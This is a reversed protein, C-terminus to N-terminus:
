HSTSRGIVVNSHSSTGHAQKTHKVSCYVIIGIIIIIIIIIVLETIILGRVLAPVITDTAILFYHFLLITITM